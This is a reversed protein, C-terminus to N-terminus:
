KENNILKLNIKQGLWQFAVEQFHPTLDSVFFEHNRNKELSKEIEPNKELFEKLKLIVEEGPDILKVKRGIKLQIQERLFPYHTCAMILTDIQAMRLPHLYSKLIRKTEGKKLWGEEILPVLLPAAQSFVELTPNKEKILKEYIGSNITARTGIVGIRKNRTIAVAKEVAPTIVEFIPLNFKNKLDNAAVASVTNCAIIIVKAGKKILFKVDEQAYKKIVEEGRGGYPTRATDGFYLIKYDPLIEWIKKVVTLGGIGSDFIGIM